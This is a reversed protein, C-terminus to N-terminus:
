RAVRVPPLPVAVWEEGGSTTGVMGGTFAGLVGLVSVGIAVGSGTSGRDGSGDTPGGAAGGLAAGFAAGVLFGFLVGRGAGVWRDKKRLRELTIIARSEVPEDQLGRRLWLTDSAFRILSGVRAVCGECRANVRLRTGPPLTSLEQASVVRPSSGLAVLAGVVLAVRM